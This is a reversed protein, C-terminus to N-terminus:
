ADGPQFPIRPRSSCHVMKLANLEDRRYEHICFGFRVVLIKQGSQADVIAGDLPGGFLEVPTTQSTAEQMGPHYRRATLDQPPAARAVAM